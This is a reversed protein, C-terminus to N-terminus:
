RETIVRYEYSGLRVMQGNEVTAMGLKRIPVGNVFTGNTSEEDWIDLAKNRWRVRCHIGSLKKDEPNFIIDAKSNRGLTYIRDEEMQISFYVAEYGIAAFDVTHLVLASDSKQIKPKEVYDPELPTEDAKEEEPIDIAAEHDAMPKKKRVFLFLATALVLFLAAIGAPIIWNKGQEPVPEPIPEPTQEPEEEIESRILDAAYVYCTDELVSGDARHFFVRLLLEDRGETRSTLKSTDLTLILGRKMDEVMEQGADAGNIGDLVPTFHRGGASLRAFSGLMKGFETQEDSPGEPLAALTYVPVSSNKVAENAEEQRIGTKQDDEGDSLIVLCKKRNLSGSAQEMVQLSNVIGAYLNTDEHGVELAEIAELAATKDTLLETTDVSNGLTGVVMSDGDSMHECIAQLAEKEQAFQDASISGSVDALCYWTIATQGCDSVDMVPVDEGGLTATFAAAEPVSGDNVNSIYLRMLNEETEYGQLYDSSKNEAHVSGSLVAFLSVAMFCAAARQLRRWEKKKMGNM